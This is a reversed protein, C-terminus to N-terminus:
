EKNGKCTVIPYEYPPPPRLPDGWPNRPPPYMTKDIPPCCATVTIPHCTGCSPCKWAPITPGLNKALTTRTIKRQLKEVLDNLEDITKHQRVCWEYATDPEGVMQPRCKSM